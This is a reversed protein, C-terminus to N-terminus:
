CYVPSDSAVCGVGSFRGGGGRFGGAFGDRDRDREESSGICFGFCFRRDGGGKEGDGEGEDDSCCSDCYKEGLCRFFSSSANRSAVSSNRWALRLTSFYELLNLGSLNSFHLILFSLYIFFMSSISCSMASSCLRGRSGAFRRLTLTISRVVGWFFGFRFGDRDRDIGGGNGMGLGTVSLPGSLGKM